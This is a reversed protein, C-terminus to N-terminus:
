YQEGQQQYLGGEGEWDQKKKRTSETIKNVNGGDATGIQALIFITYQIRLIM